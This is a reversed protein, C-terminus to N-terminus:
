QRSLLIEMGRALLRDKAQYAANAMIMLNAQNLDTVKEIVSLLYNDLASYSFASKMNLANNATLDSVKSLNSMIYDALKNYSAKALETLQTTTLTNVKNFYFDLVLNKNSYSLANTLRLVNTQNLDSLKALNNTLIEAGINYSKQALVLIEVTTLQSQSDIFRKIIINKNSYSTAEVLTLAAELDFPSVQALNAMLINTGEQYAVRALKILDNASISKSDNSLYNKLITDKASYSAANMLVIVNEVSIDNILSMNNTLTENRNQYSETALAVLERTSVRPSFKSLYNKIVLDKGSYTASKALQAINSANIDSISTLFNALINNREQYSAQGLGILEYSTFPIQFNTLFHLIVQDKGSYTANDALNRVNSANLDSLKNLNEKLIDNRQQYSNKAISLLQASTIKESLASLYANAVSDKGSYTALSVLHAAQEPTLAEVDNIHKALLDNAAQYAQGILATFDKYTVSSNLAFFKNLVVDKTSYTSVALLKMAQNVTLARLKNIGASVIENKGDKVKALLQALQDFDLSALKSIGQSFLMSLAQERKAFFEDAAAIMTEVSVEGRLKLLKITQASANNFAGSAIAANIYSILSAANKFDHKQLLISFIQESTGTSNFPIANSCLKLAEDRSLEELKVKDLVAEHLISNANHAWDLQLQLDKQLQEALQTDPEESSQNAKIQDVLNNVIEQQAYSADMFAEIQPATLKKASQFVSQLRAHYSAQPRRIEALAQALSAPDEIVLIDNLISDDVPRDGIFDINVMARETAEEISFPLKTLDNFKAKALKADVLYANTLDTAILNAGTLDAGTMDKNSFDLGNIQIGKLNAYKLDAKDIKRQRFLRIENIDGCEGFFGGNFGIEGKQNLCQGTSQHYRFGEDKALAVASTLSAAVYFITILNRSHM